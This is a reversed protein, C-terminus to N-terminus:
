FLQACQIIFSETYNRDDNLNSLKEIPVYRLLQEAALMENSKTVDISVTDIDKKIQLLMEEKETADAAYKATLKHVERGKITSEKKLFENEAKM